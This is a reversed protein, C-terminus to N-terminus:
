GQLRPMDVKIGELNGIAAISLYRDQLIEQAVSMLDEKTVREVRALIEKLTYCRQFYIEQQALHTMHSSTSELGLVFSGKINEKARRLEDESVPDCCLKRCEKTILEIVAPLSERSMGAYVMLMGADKYLNLSSFIAYVLGRKERINQFLRSSLGGGLINSMVGAAYRRESTISPAITGLCIHSQELERKHRVKICKHVQPAQSVFGNKLARQSGFHKQAQAVIEQHQLHGAAVVLMNSPSYVTRFFSSIAKRSLSKIIAKTGSIPRGLSHGRWFNETFIDHVLDAPADETMNIEECIVNREREVEAAPFRPYLVIESLLEFADRLHEDLVKAYFGVYERSTFADLQGGISDIDMAIQQASRRRTGKFLLHELFHSIGNQEASEHRSGSKIWIGLSVSRVNPLRETLITLGNDLVERHINAPMSNSRAAQSIHPDAASTLVFSQLREVQPGAAANQFWERLRVRDTV